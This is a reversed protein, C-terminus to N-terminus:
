TNNAPSFDEQLKTLLDISPQSLGRDTDIELDFAKLSKFQSRILLDVQNIFQNEIEIGSIDLCLKEVDKVNQILPLICETTIATNYVFLQVQLLDRMQSFTHALLKITENTIKTNGLSVEFIQVKPMYCFIPIIDQDTIDISGLYLEFHVLNEMFKKSNEVLAKVGKSSIKTRSFTLM